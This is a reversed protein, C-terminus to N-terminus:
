IPPGHPARHSPLQLSPILSSKTGLPSFRPSLAEYAYMVLTWMSLLSYLAIIPDRAFVAFTIYGTSTWFIHQVEISYTCVHMYLSWSPSQFDVSLDVHQLCSLVDGGLLLNAGVGQVEIRAFKLRNLNLAYQVAHLRAAILHHGWLMCVLTAAILRQGWHM